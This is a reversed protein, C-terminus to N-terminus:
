LVKGATGSLPVVGDAHWVASLLLAERRVSSCRGETM